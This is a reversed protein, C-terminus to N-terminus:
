LINEESSFGRFVICNKKLYFIKKCSFSFDVVISIDILPIINNSMDILSPRDPAPLVKHFILRPVPLSTSSKKRPVM